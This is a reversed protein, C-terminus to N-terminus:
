WRDSVAPPSGVSEAAHIERAARRPESAGTRRGRPAGLLQHDVRPELRHSRRRAAAAARDHRASRARAGANAADLDADGPHLAFLQSIHRHGPEPEDYDESWEMIQGHKGIQPPPLRRASDGPPADATRPRRGLIEASRITQTFLGSIIQHDMSPGMCLIGVQGNPLRYRNEPSVSPGSVLRGKADPVLYDLFFESAEKMCRTRGRSSRAIRISSITSGCISCSGRPAPRGCVRVRCIGLAPSDGSTRSTIRSSAAPVTTSGQPRRQGACAAVRHLRLAAPADRGPELSGRALLEDALQHQPSLRQGVAPEHQREVAGASECATRRPPQQGDASVPRVSLVASRAGSRARRTQRAGTTRRDALTSARRQDSGCRRAGSSGSITPWTIQEFGSSDRTRRRRSRGTWRRRASRRRSLQHGRDTRDDCHDRERRPHTRSLHGAAGGDAIVRASARFGLGTGGALGGVMNLRDSGDVETAADQSRDMWFSFRSRARATPPSASSSRRTPIVSSSRARSLLDPRRSVRRSRDRYGSRARAPLRQNSGRPRVHAASRRANPVVPATAAPGDPAQRGTPVSRGARGAFLLRRVEPLHKSRRPNDREMRGGMWLSNENLQIRERNVTGFVMAGLRGNGLPMAHDWQAAPQRYWLLDNEAARRRRSCVRTTRLMRGTLRFGGRDVLHDDLLARDYCPRVPDSELRNM